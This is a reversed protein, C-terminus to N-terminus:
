ELTARTTMQTRYIKPSRFSKMSAWAEILSSDVTFHEDSLLSEQRAYGVVAEFFKEAIRHELLRDRNKTFTTADLSAEEM